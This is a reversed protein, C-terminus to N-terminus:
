VPLTRGASAVVAAPLPGPVEAALTPLKKPKPKPLQSAVTLLDAAIHELKAVAEVFSLLDRRSYALLTVRPLPTGTTTKKSM